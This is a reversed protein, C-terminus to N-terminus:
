GRSSIVISVMISTIGTEFKFASVKRVESTESGSVETRTHRREAQSSVTVVLLSAMEACLFALM